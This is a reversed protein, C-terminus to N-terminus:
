ARDEEPVAEYGERAVETGEACEAPRPVTAGQRVADGGLEDFRTDNKEVYSSLRGRRRRQTKCVSMEIRAVLADGVGPELSEAFPVRRPRVLIPLM